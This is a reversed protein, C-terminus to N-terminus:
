VEFHTERFHFGRDRGCVWFLQSVSAFRNITGDIPSRQLNIQHPKIPSNRDRAANNKSVLEVDQPAFGRLSHGEAADVPQQKNLETPQSGPDQVSQLNYPRLGPASHRLMMREIPVAHWSRWFWYVVFAGRARWREFGCFVFCFLLVDHGFDQLAQRAFANHARAIKSPVGQTM